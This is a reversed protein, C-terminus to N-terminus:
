SPELPPVKEKKMDEGCSCKGPIQSFMKCRGSACSYKAIIDFEREKEWGDAKFRATGGEITAPIRWVRISDVKVATAEVMDTGCPCKGAVTSVANCPCKGGCNCVFYKRGAKVELKEADAAIVSGVFAFVLIAVLSLVALKVPKM